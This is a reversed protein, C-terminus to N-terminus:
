KFVDVFRRFFGKRKQPQPAEDPQAPPAGSAMAVPHHEPTLKPPEAPDVPTVAQRPPSPADWGAAYTASKGGGHLPCTGVPQTGAIFVENKTEPCFPTAPMGSLPDITVSVVGDPAEFPKTDRYTRHQLARKMFETWVPLASHAGELNLERNDDFGVWVVCLLQSTFGAFWGDHSTGTKGAAPVTFGRARVGAATGSRMVEELLNVMLYSVRPDLVPKTEPKHLYLVSGDKARVSSIWNPKVFVGQNAFITYGGAMEIPTTEYAGLAVAPTAQIDANLGAAKALRVVADYGVMEAVKITAVNMSKAIAQRLTVQGHFEQKFNGPEYPKGDFWFTTPEDM